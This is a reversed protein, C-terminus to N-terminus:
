GLRNKKWEHYNSYPINGDKRSRRMEPEYGEIVEIIDCRCNIVEEPSGAPDGPYLLGNSFREDLGVEEGDMDQHLDRTVDDLTALWRKKFKVGIKEAHKMADLNSEVQVKHTETRAIRLANNANSELAVKVGEAIDKYGRGRILGQAISQNINTVVNQRNRQLALNALPNEIANRVVNRNLEVFGLKIQTKNELVFATRYYGDEYIDVTGVRIKRNIDNAVDRIEKTIENQLKENRKYKYMEEKSLEYKAGYEALIGRVEKLANSYSKLIERELTRGMKELYKLKQKTLNDVNM